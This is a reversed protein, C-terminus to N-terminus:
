EGHLGPRVQCKVRINRGALGKEDVMNFSQAEIIDIPATNTVGQDILYSQLAETVDKKAEDLNYHKSIKKNVGLTPILLRGQQTDAFLELEATSRALAAGIANAVSYMPPLLVEQKLSVALYKKFIAAPAGMIFVQKPKLELRGLLERITYVPRLNIEEIMQEIAINLQSTAYAIAQEAVRVSPMKHKQALEEIGRKSAAIDGLESAELMNFADMLTPHNGGLAMCPGLREPGVVIKYQGPISKNEKATIASDGGIGVSTAKIARVLTNHGALRAGDEDIVPSANAFISIDTTTGGIDLILADDEIECLAITGMVSAAPGSLISEVPLNRALELPVTGGDAKLINIPANIGSNLVSKEVADAFENFLRWVAANYYATAIRRPFNFNSSTRHGLTIHDMDPTLLRGLHEEHHPSRTSFKCIVAACRLNAQSCLSAISKIESENLMAVEIGRHDIAGAVSFFHDGVRFKDASIGPGASVIVAVDETRGEVLANTTLTTSLNLRSIKEPKVDRLVIELAKTISYLLNKPDTAVKAQSVVKNDKLIVADTHTGGVDVGLLM